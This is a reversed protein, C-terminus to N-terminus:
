DPELGREHRIRRAIQRIAQVEESDQKPPLGLHERLEIERNLALMVADVLESLDREVVRLRREIDEV